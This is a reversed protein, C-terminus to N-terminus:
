GFLDFMGGEMDSDDDDEQDMPEVGESPEDQDQANVPVRSHGVEPSSTSVATLIDKVEKGHLAKAFLTTWIPEVDEINAAKLLSQLKEPTIEIDEDALILAAYSVVTEAKNINTTLKADTCMPHAITALTQTRLLNTPGIDLFLAKLRSTSTPPILNFSQSALVHVQFNSM